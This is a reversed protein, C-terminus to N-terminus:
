LFIISIHHFLTNPLFIENRKREQSIFSRVYKLAAVKGVAHKCLENM